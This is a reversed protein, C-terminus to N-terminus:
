DLASLGLRDQWRFFGQVAGALVGLVVGVATLALAFLASVRFGYLLQALVDRGREDTGLWNAARLAAGPNPQSPM